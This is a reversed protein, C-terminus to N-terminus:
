IKNNDFYEFATELASVLNQYAIDDLGFNNKAFIYADNTEDDTLEFGEKILYVMYLKKEDLNNNYYMPATIAMYCASIFFIKLKNRDIRGSFIDKIVEDPTKNSNYIEQYMSKLRKHIQVAILPENYFLTNYLATAMEIDIESASGSDAYIILCLTRFFSDKDNYNIASNIAGSIFDSFLGM